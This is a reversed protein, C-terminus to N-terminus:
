RGLVGAPIEVGRLPKKMNKFGQVVSLCFISKKHLYAFDTKPHFSKFFSFRSLCM